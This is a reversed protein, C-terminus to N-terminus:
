PQKVPVYINIVLNDPSTKLIETVYEEVFQDEADLQKKDLHNIIAEYTSDISEYTGRHVFKLSKGSPAVGTAIGDPLPADPLKVVPQAAQFEFGFDDPQLYITMALGDPAIGQQDLFQQVKKFAASLGDFADDLKTYGVAYVIPRAPLTVDEGFADGAQLPSPAGPKPGSPQASESHEPPPPAPTSQALAPVALALAVWALGILSAALRPCPM